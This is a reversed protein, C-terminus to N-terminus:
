EPAVKEIVGGAAVRDGDYLVLSQGPTLARQPEAFTVTATDGEGPTLVAPAPTHLYRIKGHVPAPGALREGSPYSVRTLLATRRFLAEERDVTVTATGPDIASVYVRSGTAVGVGSGLGACYTTIDNSPAPSM